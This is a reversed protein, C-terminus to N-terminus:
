PTRSGQRMDLRAMVLLLRHLVKAPGSARVGGQEVETFGWALARGPDVGGDRFCTEDLQDRWRRYGAVVHSMSRNDTGTIRLYETILARQATHRARFGGALDVVQGFARLMRIYVPRDATDTQQTWPLVGGPDDPKAIVSRDLVIWAEPAQPAGRNAVTAKEDGTDGVEIGHLPLPYKDLVADVADAIDRAVSVAIGSSEFGSIQLNHRAAMAMLIRM